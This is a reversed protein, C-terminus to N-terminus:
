KVQVSAWSLVWRSWILSRQCCHSKLNGIMGLPQGQYSDPDECSNVIFSSYECLQPLPAVIVDVFPIIQGPSLMRKYQFSSSVSRTKLISLSPMSQATLWDNRLCNMSTPWSTLWQTSSQPFILRLTLCPSNSLSFPHQAGCAFLPSLSPCCRLGQDGCSSDVEGCSRDWCWRDHAPAGFGGM